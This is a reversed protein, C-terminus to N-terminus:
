LAVGAILEVKNAAEFTLLMPPGTGIAGLTERAVSGLPLVRAFRVGTSARHLAEFEAQATAVEPRSARQSAYLASGRHQSPM